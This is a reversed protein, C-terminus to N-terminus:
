GVTRKLMEVQAKKVKYKDMLRGPTFDDAHEEIFKQRVEKIEELTLPDEMAFLEEYYRPMGRVVGGGPMPVEDSPFLDGKFKEYWEKGIGPKRSMTSFEPQLWTIEGNANVKIYHDDAALGNVKKMAYRAVYAASEFNVEGVDVFGYKWIGSLKESTYRGEGNVTTYLELDDFSINFLIAHHHPRGVKCLPCAVRELDIGHQCRNGYEGCQYFRIRQSGYAKRLRKMFNRFHSKDLSWDDPIHLGEKLQQETCECRDRYTLTVFSNGGNFEHMSAEHSIRLAWMRSKDLRCGICQGCAVEATSEAGRGKFVLRGEDDRWGKLPSYCPM